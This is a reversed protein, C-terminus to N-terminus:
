SFYTRVLKGDRIEFPTDPSDSVSKTKHLYSIMDQAAGLSEEDTVMVSDYLNKEKDYLHIQETPIEVEVDYLPNDDSLSRMVFDGLKVNMCGQIKLVCDESECKPASLMMLQATLMNRDFFIQQMRDHFRRDSLVVDAWLITKAVSAYFKVNAPANQIAKLVYTSIMDRAQKVADIPSSGNSVFDNYMMVFIDYLAGLFIRGFSHPEAALQDKPADKPLSGPNVYKYDNVANRLCTSDRGSDAPSIKSIAVGFQEALRSIVNPLGLNNGTESLAKNIVEDHTMIYMMATFDSFAEHFSSTELSMASWLEPRYSDLIAHGLEHAVIDTSDCAFVTGGIKPNTFYFFQLARRDYFANMDVGAHPIVALTSTGSWKTILRDPHLGNFYNITGTVTIFCNAAQGQPTIRSFGGGQYGKVIISPATDYVPPMVSKILDPTTPDNVVYEIPQHQFVPAQPIQHPTSPSRKIRWRTVVAGVTKELGFFSLFREFFTM